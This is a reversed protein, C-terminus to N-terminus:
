ADAGGHWPTIECDRLIGVIFNEVLDADRGDFPKSEPEGTIEDMKRIAAARIAIPNDLNCAIHYTEQWLDYDAYANGYVDHALVAAVPRSLPAEHSYSYEISEGTMGLQIGAEFENACEGSAILQQVRADWDARNM